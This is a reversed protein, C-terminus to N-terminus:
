QLQHLQQEITEKDIQVYGHPVVSNQGTTLIYKLFDVVVANQPIGKCVLYLKRAPPSPYRGDAIAAILQDKTDYFDEKEDITGNGDVDIPLVLLNANPKSTSDDYAYCVNNFGIANVNKQVAAAIGPDGFVGTGQLDEQSAGLWKAWTEAAGCADSRTFVVVPSSENSETLEGWTENKGDIWIDKAQQITMGKAMLVDKVPNDANITPIVADKAVAFAIAGKELESPAVERSVMGFDVMDYLVDTIGKGAGGASIDIKVDPHLANYDAAWQVVLPYMAFAGSLSIEKANNKKRGCQTSLIASILVLVLFLYSRKM